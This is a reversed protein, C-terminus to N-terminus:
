GYCTGAVDSAVGVNGRICPSRGRHGHWVSGIARFPLRGLPRWFHCHARSFRALASRQYRSREPWSNLARNSLRRRVFASARIRCRSPRRPESVHALEAGCNRPRRASTEATSSRRGSINQFIDYGFVSSASFAPSRVSSGRRYDRDRRPLLIKQHPPNSRSRM